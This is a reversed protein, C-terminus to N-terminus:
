NGSGWDSRLGSIVDYTRIRYFEMPKDAIRTWPPADVVALLSFPDSFLNTSSYIEFVIGPSPMPQVWNWTLRIYNPPPVVVAASFKILLKAGDGQSSASSFITSALFVLLALGSNMAYRTLAATGFLNLRRYILGRHYEVTKPSVGLRGAIEKTNLNEATLILVQLQRPTLKGAEKMEARAGCVMRGAIDGQGNEDM